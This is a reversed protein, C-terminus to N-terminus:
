KWSVNEKLVKAPSGGILCNKLLFIGKVVSNSAIVCGDPIVTGKYVKVSNGMWVHNGIVISNTTEKKGEYDITHFDEDLFQCDWSIACNDGISLNHYILLSSNCNIYGGKGIVVKAREGIDFRCGRGISFAGQFFLQGKINLYTIDKKHSFGV